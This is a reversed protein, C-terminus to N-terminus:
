RAATRESSAASPPLSQPLHAARHDERGSARGSHSPSAERILGEARERSGQEDSRRRLRWGLGGCGERVEVLRAARSGGPERSLARKTTTYCEHGGHLVLYVGYVVLGLGFLIVVMGAIDVVLIRLRGRAPPRM